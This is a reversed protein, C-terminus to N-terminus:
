FQRTLGFGVDFADYTSVPINSHQREAVFEVYPAFGGWSIESHRMQVTLTDRRTHEVVGFLGHPGDNTSTKVRLDGDITLGGAFVHSAGLGVEWATAAVEPSTADTREYKLSGRLSTTSSLAHTYSLYGVSRLGDGGPWTPHTLDTVAVGFGLRGSAGQRTITHLAFGQGRSYFAGDIYREQYSVSAKLLTNPGLLAIASADVIGTVDDPTAGDYFTGDVNLGVQMQLTDSVQHAYALGGQIEVGTAPNARSSPDLPASGFGLDITEEQTKRTPNSSPVVAISFSGSWPSPRDMSRAQAAAHDRQVANLQGGRALDYHYAARERQGLKVLTDALELRFRAVDPRRAVLDELAALAQAPQGAERHVVALLWLRQAEEDRTQPSWSQLVAQAGQLDGALVLNRVAEPPSLAQAAATGGVLIACLCAM